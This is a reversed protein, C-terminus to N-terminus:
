QIWQLFQVHRAEHARLSFRAKPDGLLAVAVSLRRKMGGSYAGARLDAAETLKVEELLKIAQETHASPPLGKISAFLLLHERGTLEPWLVDFQPCVGMIQRVDGMGAYTGISDGYVLVDGETFNGTTLCNITTSKGAGNHGLLAFCEGADYHSTPTLFSNYTFATTLERPV